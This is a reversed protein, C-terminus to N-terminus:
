PRADSDFRSKELSKQLAYLLDKVASFIALPQDSVPRWGKLGSATMCRKRFGCSVVPVTLFEECDDESRDAIEALSQREM